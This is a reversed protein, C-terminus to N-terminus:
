RHSKKELSAKQRNIPCPWTLLNSEFRDWSCGNAGDHNVSRNDGELLGLTCELGWPSTRSGSRHHQDCRARIGGAPHRSCRHGKRRHHGPISCTRGPQVCQECSGGPRCSRLHSRRHSRHDDVSRSSTRHSRGCPEHSCGPGSTSCSYSLRWVGPGM